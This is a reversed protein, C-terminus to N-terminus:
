LFYDREINCIDISNSQDADIAKNFNISRCNKCNGSAWRKNLKDAIDHHKNSNWIEKFSNDNLNGIELDLDGIDPQCLYVGGDYNFFVGSKIEIASCKTLGTQMEKIYNSKSYHSIKNKLLSRVNTRNHDFLKINKKIDLQVSEVWEDELVVGKGEYDVAPIFIIYDFGATIAVNYIDYLEDYNIKNIVCRAGVIVRSSDNKIKEPLSFQQNFSKSETIKEYRDEQTSYVSVAIYNMKEATVIHKDRLAIGNTILAVEVGNNMLKDAYIDWEKIITPEGGGSLYVANCKIDILDNILNDIIEKKLYNTTKRRSGYSCHICDYNCNSTWHIEASIPSLIEINKTIRERYFPIIKNVDLLKDLSTFM